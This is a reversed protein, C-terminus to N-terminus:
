NVWIIDRNMRWETSENMLQGWEYEMGNIWSGDMWNIWGDLQDMWGTSGNIWNIWKNLHNM